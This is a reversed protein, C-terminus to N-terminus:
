HQCASGSGKAAAGGLGHSRNRNPRGRDARLETRQQLLPFAAVELLEPKEMELLEIMGILGASHSRLNHAVIHAFNKLRENQTKTRELLHTMQQEVKKLGSINTFIGLFGIHEGEVSLKTLSCLTNILTGHADRLQFERTFFIDHQAEYFPAQKPTCKVGYQNQIETSLAELEEQLLLQQLQRQQLMESASFHLLNEAGANFLSITGERDTGIIAVQTSADLVAQLKSLATKLREEAAKEEIVDRIISWILKRGNLDEIVIGRLEVPYLTGDKRRYEKEFRSYEGKTRMEELALAEMPAYKKPTVDWYSLALFEEKTYQTPALLKSNVDLFQGTEFDNLAIGIPSLEFLATFLDRHYTIEREKEKQHTIDQLTGYMKSPAGTSDWDFVQGREAMWLWSGNPHQMRFEVQYTDLTGALYQTISNLAQQRDEPHMRAIWEERMMPQGHKEQIGLYNRWWENILMEGSKMNWDWTGLKSSELILRQRKKAEVIDQIPRGEPIVFIVEGASNKVPRLSFLITVERKDKIWVNVEYSVEQGETGARFAAEAGGTDGHQDAVLLLRWFYKGVVDSRQLGAMDLATANAETLIGNRDLFGIFSFSSNFISQFKDKLLTAEELKMTSERETEQLTHYLQETYAVSHLLFDRFYSYSAEPAEAELISVLM